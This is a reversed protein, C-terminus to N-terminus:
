TGGIILTTGGVPCGGSAARGQHQVARVLHEGDLARGVGFGLAWMSCGSTRIEKQSRRCRTGLELGTADTGDAVTFVMCSSPRRPYLIYQKRVDDADVNGASAAPRGRKRGALRPATTSGPRGGTRRAFGRKTRKPDCDVAVTSTGSKAVVTDVISKLAESVELRDQLALALRSALIEKKGKYDAGAHHLLAALEKKSLLGYRPTNRIEQPKKTQHEAEKLEFAEPTLM